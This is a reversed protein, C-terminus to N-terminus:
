LITSPHLPPVAPRPHLWHLGPGRTHRLLQEDTPAVSCTAWPNLSLMNQGWTFSFWRVTPLITLGLSQSFAQGM